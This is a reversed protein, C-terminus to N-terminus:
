ERKKEKRLDSFQREKDKEYNSLTQPSPNPCRYFSYGQPLILIVIKRNFEESSSYKETLRKIAMRVISPVYFCPGMSALLQSIAISM